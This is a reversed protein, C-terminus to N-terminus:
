DGANLSLGTRAWHLLEAPLALAGPGSLLPLLARPSFALQVRAFRQLARRARESRFNLSRHSVTLTRDYCCPSRLCAHRTSTYIRTHM